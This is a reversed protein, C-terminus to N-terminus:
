QRPGTPRWAWLNGAWGSWEFPGVEYGADQLASRLTAEATERSGDRPHYEFVLVRPEIEPWRGDAILEWEAGEIDIKAFDAEALHPFVDVADVTVPTPRFLVSGQLFPFLATIEQEFADADAPALYASSLHAASAFEVSGATPAACAEVLSWRQGLENREISRSLLASNAPDPEFSLVTCDPFRGLAFLGFLGVHGGLDLVRLPRDIADLAAAAESRPEYVRLRFVEELIWADLLPQRILARLGSERLRYEREIPQGSNRLENVVFRGSEKVCSAAGLARKLRQSRAAPM